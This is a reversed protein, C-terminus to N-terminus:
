KELLKIKTMHGGIAIVVMCVLTPWEKDWVFREFDIAVLGTAIAVLYGMLTSAISSKNKM